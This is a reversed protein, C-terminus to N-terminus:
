SILWGQTWIEVGVSISEIDRNGWRNMSISILDIKFITLFLTKYISGFGCGALRDGLKEGCLYSVVRVMFM